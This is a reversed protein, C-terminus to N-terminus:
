FIEKLTKHILKKRKLFATLSQSKAKSVASIVLSLSEVTQEKKLIEESAINLGQWELLHSETDAADATLIEQILQKRVAEDV